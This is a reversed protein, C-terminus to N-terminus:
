LDEKMYMIQVSVFHFSPAKDKEMYINYIIM